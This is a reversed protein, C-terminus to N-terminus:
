KSSHPRWMRLTPWPPPWPREVIRGIGADAHVIGTGTFVGLHLQEPGPEFVLVDGAEPRGCDTRKLGFWELEGDLREIPTGRLSYDRRIREAPLGLALAVTGVCDLGSSACRGQSRFRIGVLARARAAVVANGCTV